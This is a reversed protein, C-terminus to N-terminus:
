TVLRPQVGPLQRQHSHGPLLVPAGPQDSVGAVQSPLGASPLCSMVKTEIVQRSTSPGHHTASVDLFFLQPPFIGSLSLSPLSFSRYHEFRESSNEQFRPQTPFSHGTGQSPESGLHARPMTLAVLLLTKLHEVSCM